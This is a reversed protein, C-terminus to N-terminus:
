ILFFLFIIFFFAFQFAKYYYYEYNVNKYFIKLVKFNLNNLSNLFFIINNSMKLKLIRLNIFFWLNYKSLVAPTDFNNYWYYFIWKFM